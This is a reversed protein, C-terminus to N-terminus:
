LLRALAAEAKELRQKNTLVQKFLDGKAKIRRPMSALTFQAPTIKRKVEAWELPASVTAAARERVAYPAVVTKGQANQLFDVYIHNAGRRDLARVTTAIEPNRAVIYNAFREAFAAVEDYRYRRAIPVYVHLGRSGSTKPYGELGIEDLGRKVALALTRVVDFEVHGPDLDFVIWDPHEPDQVTSHWPHLPIVGLNALYLLTARNDCVAYDVTHGPAETTYTEVYDPVEDVDHQFFFKGTVGDPFRKLILPRDQLYPLLVPAVALLYRFLDAKTYGGEPFYVKDLSTLAVVNGDLEVRVSGTLNKGALAQAAPQGVGPVAVKRVSPTRDRAAREPRTSASTRAATRAPRAGGSARVAPRAPGAHTASPKITKRPGAGKARQKM